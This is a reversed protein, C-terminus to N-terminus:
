FMIVGIESQKLSVAHSFIAIDDTTKSDVKSVYLTKFNAKSNFINLNLGNDVARFSRM